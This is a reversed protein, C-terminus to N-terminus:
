SRRQEYLKSLDISVGPALNLARQLAKVLLDAPLKGDRETQLEESQLFDDFFWDLRDALLEIVEINPTPDRLENLPIGTIAALRELEDADYFESPPRDRKASNHTVCLCTATEDLPWLLALPRTHDLHMDKQDALRTGCKFCRGGFRNWVSEALERGAFRKRHLLSPSGEYLESLLVEIARRRAGDEKMQSATRQPNLVANVAFKKCFRCELQYGYELQLVEDSDVNRLRGFTSHRCPRRAVCHNSFSLQQRENNVNIPLFRACRNCTKLVIEAVEDVTTCRGEIVPESVSVHLAPTVFNAEPAFAWMNGMLRAARTPDPDAAVGDLYEHGIAGGSMDYLAVEWAASSGEFVIDFHLPEGNTYWISGAKGWDPATFAELTAKHRFGDVRVDVGPTIFFWLGWGVLTGPETEPVDFGVRVLGPGDFRWGGVGSRQM